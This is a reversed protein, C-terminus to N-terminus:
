SSILSYKDQFFYHHKVKLMVLKIKGMGPNGKEDAAGETTHQREVNM